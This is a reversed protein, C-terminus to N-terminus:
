ILQLCIINTNQNLYFIKFGSKDKRWFFLPAPTRNFSPRKSVCL